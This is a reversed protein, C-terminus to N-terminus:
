ALFQNTDREMKIITRVTSLDTVQAHSVPFLQQWSAIQHNKRGFRDNETIDVWRFFLIVNTPFRRGGQEGQLNHNIWNKPAPDDNYYRNKMARYKRLAYLAELEKVYFEGQKVLKKIKLPETERSNKM